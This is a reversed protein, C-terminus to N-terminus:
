ARERLADRLWPLIEGARAEVRVTALEDGRSPGLTVIAVPLGREHARRVFRFGSFVALSSGVVLLAGAAEVRAYAAEVLERQVSEGFFVVDPKLDGSCRTCRPLVFGSLLARTADLDADGDPALEPAGERSLERLLWANDAELRLQVEDRPERLGCDLCRVEALAGHLEIVDASGAAHHLRDVNQTIPGGTVGDRELEALALHAPNPRAGRFRPWGLMSRAWYRARLHPDKMYDAFRIPNRARRQTEPGRYDPIGSETSIGAGTLVAVRRDGLGGLLDLLAGRADPLSRAEM